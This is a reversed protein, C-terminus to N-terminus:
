KSATLEDLLVRAKTALTKAGDIDENDLAQRAKSIFTKIQNATETEQPTLSRKIATLGNETNNILDQTDRKTQSGTAVDGTSLQGIPSVDAPAGTSATQPPPPTPIAPAIPKDTAAPLTAAATALAPAGEAPKVPAPKPKHTVPHKKHAPPTNVPQENTTEPLPTPAPNDPELTPLPTPTQGTTIPPAQAQQPLPRAKKQFLPTCGTSLVVLLVFAAYKIASIM